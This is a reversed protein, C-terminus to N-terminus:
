DERPLDCRVTSCHECMGRTFGDDYTKVEGTCGEHPEGQAPICSCRKLLCANCATAETEDSHYAAGCSTCIYRTLTVPGQPGLVFASELVPGKPLEDLKEWASREDM